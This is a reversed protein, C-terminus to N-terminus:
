KKPIAFLEITEIDLFWKSLLHLRCSRKLYQKCINMLVISIIGSYFFSNRIGMGIHEHEDFKSVMMVFMELIKELFIIRVDIAGSSGLLKYATHDKAFIRKDIFCVVKRLSSSSITIKRNRILSLLDIEIKYMGTRRIVIAM